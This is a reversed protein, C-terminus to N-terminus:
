SMMLLKKADRVTHERIVKFPSESVETNMIELGDLLCIVLLDTKRPNINKAFMNNAEKISTIKKLGIM